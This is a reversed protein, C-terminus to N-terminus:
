RANGRGPSARLLSSRWGAKREMGAITNKMSEATISGFPFPLGYEQRVLSIDRENM